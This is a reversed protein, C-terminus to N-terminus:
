GIRRRVPPAPALTAMEAEIEALLRRRTALAPHDATLTAEGISLADLAAAHAADLDGQARLV